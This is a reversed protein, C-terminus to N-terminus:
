EMVKAAAEVASQQFAMRVPSNDANPFAARQIMLILILNKKPDAWGQTGYAGGHGFTGPSLM